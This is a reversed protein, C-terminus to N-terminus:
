NKITTSSLDKGLQQLPGSKAGLAAQLEKSSSGQLCKAKKLVAPICKEAKQRQVTSEYKLAKHSWTPGM